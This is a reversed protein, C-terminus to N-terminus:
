KKKQPAPQAKQPQPQPQQQAQQAKAAEAQLDVKTVGVTKLKADLRKVVEATVDVAQNHMLVVGAELVVAANREKMIDIILPDANRLVEAIARNRTENLEANRIQAKEDLASLKQAYSQYKNRLAEDKQLEELIQQRNKDQFSPGLAKAETEIPKSEAELERKINSAITQLQTQASKGAASEAFIRARDVVVVGAAGSQAQAIPASFVAGVVVGAMILTKFIRM